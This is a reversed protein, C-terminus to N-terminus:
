TRPEPVNTGSSIRQIGAVVWPRTSRIMRRDPAWTVGVVMM